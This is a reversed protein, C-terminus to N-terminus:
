FSLSVGGSVRAASRSPTPAFLGQYLLSLSLRQSVDLSAGLQAATSPSSTKDEPTLRSVSMNMSLRNQLASVSAGGGIRSAGAGTNGRLREIETSLKLGAGLNVDVGGGTGAARSAGEFLPADLFPSRLAGGSANNWSLKSRAARLTLYRSFDFSLATQAALGEIEVTVESEGSARGAFANSPAGELRPNSASFGTKTEVRLATEARLRPSIQLKVGGELNEKALSNKAASGLTASGATAFGTQPVMLLSGSLPASKRAVSKRFGGRLLGGRLLGGSASKDFLTSDSNANSVPIKRLNQKALARAAEVDVGLQKLESQLSLTLALISRWESRSVRASNESEDQLALLVRATQLAAEYRTLPPAAKSDTKSGTEGRRLLALQTNIPDGPPLVSFEDARAPASVWLCVLLIAPVFRPAPRLFRM